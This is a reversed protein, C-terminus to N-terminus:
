PEPNLALGLARVQVTTIYIDHVRAALAAKARLEPTPATLSPGSSAWRDLIYQV